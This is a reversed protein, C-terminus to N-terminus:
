LIALALVRGQGKKLTINQNQHCGECLRLEASTRRTKANLVSLTAEAYDPMQSVAAYVKEQEPHLDLDVVNGGVMIFDNQKGTKLDIVNIGGPMAPVKTAYGVGYPEGNMYENGEALWLEDASPWSQGHHVSNGITTIAPGITKTTLNFPTASSDQRNILWLAEGLGPFISTYDGTLPLSQGPGQGPVFQQLKDKGLLWLSGAPGPSMAVAGPLGEQWPTLTGDVKLSALTGDAALVFLQQNVVALDLGKKDMKIRTLDTTVLDVVAIHDTEALVYAKGSLVPPAYVQDPKQDCGFLLTIILLSIITKVFM